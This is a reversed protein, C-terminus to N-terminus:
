MRILFQYIILVLTLSKGDLLDIEENSIDDMHVLNPLMDSPITEAGNADMANLIGTVEGVHFGGLQNNM